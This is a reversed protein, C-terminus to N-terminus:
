LELFHPCFRYRSRAGKTRAADIGRRPRGIRLQWNLLGSNRKVLCLGRKRNRVKTEHVFLGATGRWGGVGGCKRGEAGVEGEDGERGPRSCNGSGM